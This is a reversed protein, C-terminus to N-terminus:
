AADGPGGAQARPSRRGAAAVPARSRIEGMLRAAFERAPEGDGLGGGAPAFFEVRLRPRAPFRPIDTTGAVACLVVRAEPVAAALRGIGGRARLERGLSRTGEPFVGICAGARLEETARVIAGADGAGRVIPIAGMGDLVRGIGPIGWMSAKALARIQRRHRAAVGIAVPDWYSDHNAVLLVAGEPPLLELGTVELRGWPLVIPSSISIVARYAPTVSEASM